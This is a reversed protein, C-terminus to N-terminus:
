TTIAIEVGFFHVVTSDAHVQHETASPTELERWVQVVEIVQFAADKHHLQEFNKSAPDPDEEADLGFPALVKTQKILHRYSVKIMTRLVRPGADSPM